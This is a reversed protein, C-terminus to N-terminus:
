HTRQLFVTDYFGRLKFGVRRYFRAAAQNAENSVLVLTRSHTLMTLALQSLCRTGYGRGRAQPSVYVGEIYVAEPTESVVDAKFILTGDEVMVWVRGLEIRRACRRRFGEPDAELPNVGSEDFAMQAHVPLILDLDALTALRLGEVSEAVAVPWSLEFLLERCVLRPTQGGESYHHWFQEIKDQEGVILHASSNQQALAAFAELARDTRTEVVTAHGILAVGELAGAADRCGYFTGRNLPSVIGNDRILGMMYVTHLAREALFGLVEATHTEDLRAVVAAASAEVNTMPPTMTDTRAANTQLM